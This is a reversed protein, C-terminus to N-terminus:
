LFGDNLLVYLCVNIHIYIYIYINLVQSLSPHTAASQEPALQLMLKIREGPVVLMATPISAFGGAIVQPWIASPNQWTNVLWKWCIDYSAFCLSAIPM